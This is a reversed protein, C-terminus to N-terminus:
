GGRGIVNLPATAASTKVYVASLRRLPITLSSGVAMYFPQASSNGVYVPQASTPDVQLVVEVLNEPDSGVLSALTAAVNTVTVQASVPLSASGLISVPNVLPM